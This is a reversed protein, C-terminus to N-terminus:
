LSYSRSHPFSLFPFLSLSLSLSLCMCMSECEIKQKIDETPALDITTKSHCNPMTPDAGHCLLLTCVEMRSLLSVCLLYWHCLGLRTYMYKTSSMVQVQICSWSSSHVAMPGSCECQSWEIYLHLSWTINHYLIICTLMIYWGQSAAWGGWLTWLLLCQPTTSSRRQGQRPCWCWAQYAGRGCWCPQLWCGPPPPHVTHPPHMDLLLSVCEHEVHKLQSIVHGRSKNMDHCYLCVTHTHSQHIVKSQHIDKMCGARM